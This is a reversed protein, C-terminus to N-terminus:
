LWAITNLIARQRLAEPSIEVPKSSRQAAVPPQAPQAPAQQVMRGPNRHPQGYRPAQFHPERRPQWRPAPPSDYPQWLEPNGRPQALQALGAAPAADRSVAIDAFAVLPRPVGAFHKGHLAGEICRAVASVQSPADLVKLRVGSASPPFALRVKVEGQSGPTAQTAVCRNIAPQHTDLADGVADLASAGAGLVTHLKVQVQAQSAGPQAHVTSMVLLASASCGLFLPMKM